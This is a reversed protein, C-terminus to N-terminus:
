RLVVAGERDGLVISTVRDGSIRRGRIPLRGPSSGPDSLLVTGDAFDRRWVGRWRERNGLARGLDLRFGSWLEGPETGEGSSLLDGGENAM